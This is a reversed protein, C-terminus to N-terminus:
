HNYFTFLYFCLISVPSLFPCCNLNYVLQMASDCLEWKGSSTSLARVCMGLSNKCSVSSFQQDCASLCWAPQLWFVPSVQSKVKIGVWRLITCSNIMCGAAGERVSDKFFNGWFGDPPKLRKLMFQENEKSLVM